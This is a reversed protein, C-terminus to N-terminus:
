PGGTTRADGAADESMPRVRYLEVDPAGYVRVLGAGDGASGGLRREHPGYLVYDIGTTRLFETREADLPASFFWNTQTVKRGYDLTAVWHGVYVRSRAAGALYNGSLVAGLIVEDTAANDRLWDAAGTVAAPQYPSRDAGPVDPALRSPGPAVGISLVIAYTLASTGFLGQLLVTMVIPRALRWRGSVLRRRIALWLLMGGPAAALAVMAHLGAGFRKQTSLPLQMVMLATVIWVLVLVRGSTPRHRLIPLGVAVMPLLLGFAELIELFPPTLQVNQGGYTWSWFPLVLFTVANGVV